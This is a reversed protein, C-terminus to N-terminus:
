VFDDFEELLLDIGAYVLVGVRRVAGAPEADLFLIARQAENVVKLREIGDCDSVRSNRRDRVL